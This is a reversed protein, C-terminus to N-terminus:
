ATVPGAAQAAQPPLLALVRAAMRAAAGRRLTAFAHAAAV